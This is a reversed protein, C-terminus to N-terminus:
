RGQMKITKKETQMVNKYNEKIEMISLCNISSNVM